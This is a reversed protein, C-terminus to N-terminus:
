GPGPRPAPASSRTARRRCWPPGGRRDCLQVCCLRDRPHQLVSPRPTWPWEASALYAQLQEETPRAPRNRARRGAAPRADTRSWIVVLSCWSETARDSSRRGAPHDIKRSARRPLRAAGRGSAGAGQGSARTPADAIECGCYKGALEERIADKILEAACEEIAAAAPATRVSRHQRHLRPGPRQSRFRGNRATPRRGLAAM